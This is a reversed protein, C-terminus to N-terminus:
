HLKQEINQYEFNNNKLYMRVDEMSEFFDDKYAEILSCNGLDLVINEGEQRAKKIRYSGNCKDLVIGEGDQTVEKFEYSDNCKAGKNDVYIYQNELVSLDDITQDPKITIYNDMVFEKTFDVYAISGKSSKDYYLVPQGFSPAESLRVNRPIVTSYVKQPFFRKVENVVQQTLNLRGDYMTLLVGELEISYNYQRKIRRVTSMLQSLGELAFYECQM